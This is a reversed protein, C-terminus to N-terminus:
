IAHRAEYDRAIHQLLNLGGLISEKRMCIEDGFMFTEYGIGIAYGVALIDQFAPVPSEVLSPFIRSAMIAQRDKAIIDEVAGLIKHPRDVEVYLDGCAAMLRVQSNYHKNVFYMGHQSEIKAVANFFAKEDLKLLGDLDEQKEVFSLMYDHLNNKKAAEIYKLDTETFYGEIELSKDIINISEGPGVVRRPGEQFILRDGDVAALTAAEDGNGFYATVPTKVKIKHSIRIETFPPVAYTVTRLQRGKLDIWLPKGDAEENLRKLLEELPEKTPMVTNLRLGSVIPHQAVESIFPAYPPVTVIASIAM